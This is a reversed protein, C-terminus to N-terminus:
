CKSLYYVFLLISILIRIAGLIEVALVRLMAKVATSVM